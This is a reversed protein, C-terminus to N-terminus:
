GEASADYVLGRACRATGKRSRYYSRDPQSRADDPALRSPDLEHPCHFVFARGWLSRGRVGTANLRNRIDSDEKSFGEYREDFGNVEVLAEYTTSWNGGLIKPKDATRILRHWLQKRHVARLQSLAAADLLPDAAEGSAELHEAQPIDLYVYGGTAYGAGSALARQHERLWTRHPITDGDLFLVHGDEITRLANNLAKAKRFGLNEHTVFRVPFPARAAFETVLAESDPESGDDAVTLGDPTGDLRLVGDLVLRLARPQNFSTVVIRTPRAVLAVPLV